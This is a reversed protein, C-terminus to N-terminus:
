FWGWKASLALHQIVFHCTGRETARSLSQGSRMVGAVGRYGFRPNPKISALGCTEAVVGTGVGGHTLSHGCGGCHFQLGGWHM